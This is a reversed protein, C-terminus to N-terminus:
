RCYVVGWISGPRVVEMFELSMQREESLSRVPMKFTVCELSFDQDVAM